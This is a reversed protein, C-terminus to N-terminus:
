IEGVLMDLRPNGALGDFDSDNAILHRYDQNNSVAEELLDLVDSSDGNTLAVQAAYLLVESRRGSSALAETIAQDAALAQGSRSLYVAM